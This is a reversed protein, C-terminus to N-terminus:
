DLPSDPVSSCTPAIGLTDRSNTLVDVARKLKAELFRKQDLLQRLKQHRAIALSITSLQEPPCPFYHVRGDSDLSCLRYSPANIEANPALAPPSGGAQEVSECLQDVYGSLAQPDGHRLLAADVGALGANSDITELWGDVIPGELYLDQIQQMTQKLDHHWTNVAMQIDQLVKIALAPNADHRHRSFSPRKRRPLAPLQSSPPQTPFATVPTKSTTKAPGHSAINFSVTRRPEAAVSPPQGPATVPALSPLEISESPYAM